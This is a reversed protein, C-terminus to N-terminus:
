DHPAHNLREQIKKLTQFYGILNMEAEEIDQPTYDSEAILPLDSLNM